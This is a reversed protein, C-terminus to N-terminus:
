SFIHGYFIHGDGKKAADKKIKKKSEWFVTSCQPTSFWILM